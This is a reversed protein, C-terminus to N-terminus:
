QFVVDITTDVEVPKGNLLTPSYRWQRVADVAAMILLPPGSIVTVSGVSGDVQLVVKLEVTGKVQNQLALPPYIPDVRHTLKASAVKGGLRVRMPPATSLAQVVEPNLSRFGGNVYVFTGLAVPNQDSASSGSASYIKGPVIMAQLAAHVLRLNTDSDKQFVLVTVTTHSSTLASDFVKELAELAQPELELYKADVRPAETPGFTKTFWESDNPIAMDTLYSSIKANDDAKMAAFIDSLLRKLGEPTDPYASRTSDPSTGPDQSTQLPAAPITFALLSVAAAALIQLLKQM